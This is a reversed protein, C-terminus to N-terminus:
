VALDGAGDEAAELKAAQYLLFEITPKYAWRKPNVGGTLWEIHGGQKTLCLMLNHNDAIDNLPIQEKICIPDDLSHIILTPIRIDKLHSRCSISDYFSKPDTYGNSPITYYNDFDHVRKAKLCKDVDYYPKKDKEHKKLIDYNNLVNEQLKETMILNHVEYGPTQLGKVVMSLDYPASLAVQAKFPWKERYKGANLLTVGAGMSIGVTFLNPNGFHDNLFDVCTMIDPM